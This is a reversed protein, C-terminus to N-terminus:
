RFGKFAWVLASGLALGFAPPLFALFSAHWIVSRREEAFNSALYKDPDFEGAFPATPCTEVTCNRKRWAAYDEPFTQWTVFGVGGIWLLSLVLWLRFVGRAVRLAM